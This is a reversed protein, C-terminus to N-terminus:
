PRMAHILENLRNKFSNTGTSLIEATIPTGKRVIPGSGYHPGSFGELYMFGFSIASNLKSFAEATITDGASVKASDYFKYKTLGSIATLNDIFLNYASATLNTVPQGTKILAADDDTWSFDSVYVKNTFSFNMKYNGAAVTALNITEDVLRRGGNGYTVITFVYNPSYTQYALTDKVAITDGEIEQTLTGILFNNNGPNNSYCIQTYTAM